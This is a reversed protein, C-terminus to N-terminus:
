FDSGLNIYILAVDAFDDCFTKEKIIIVAKEYYEKAESDQGLHRYVNGLYYYCLAVTPHKDDFIKRNIILAKM